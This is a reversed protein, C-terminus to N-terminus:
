YQLTLTATLRHDDFDQVGASCNCHRALYRYGVRANWHGRSLYIVSAEAFPLKDRRDQGRYSDHFYGGELSAIIYRRLEYDGRVSGGRHLVGTTGPVGSDLVNSEGRATITLLQSPFYTLTGLLGLGSIARVGPLDFNQRIYGVRVDGHMLNTIDFNSGVYAGFGSSDRVLGGALRRQYDVKNVTGAAYVSVTRSVAREVRLLGDLRSRDRDRTFLTGGLRDPTDRFRLRNAQARFIVRTSAGEITGGVYSTLATYELPKAANAPSDAAFRPLVLSGFSAGASLSSLPGIMVAGDAGVLGEETNESSNDAYRRFDGRVYSSLRYPGQSTRLTAEPRVVLALDSRRRDNNAFVNSTAISGIAVGPFLEFNGLKSGKATFAPLMRDAVPVQNGRNFASEATTIPVEPPVLVTEPDHLLQAAAPSVFFGLPLAVCRLLRGRSALSRSM